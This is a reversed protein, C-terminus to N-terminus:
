LIELIKLFIVRWNMLSQFSKIELKIEYIRIQNIQLIGRWSLKKNTAFELIDRKEFEILPRKIKGNLM